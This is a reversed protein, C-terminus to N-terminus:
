NHHVSSFDVLPDLISLTEYNLPINCRNAFQLISYLKLKIDDYKFYVILICLLQSLLIKLCFYSALLRYRMGAM